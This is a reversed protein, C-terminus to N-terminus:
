RSPKSAIANVVGVFSDVAVVGMVIKEVKMDGASLRPGVLFTPTASLGLAQAQKIDAEVSTSPQGLCRDFAVVDVGASAAAERFTLDDFVGFAGFLSDHVKWFRDQREACAAAVAAAYARPHTARNPFHRFVFEATGADIVRAKLVPFVSQAFEQCYPCEFDSYSIVVVPATPVGIRPGADIRLPTAPLRPIAVPPTRAAPAIAIWLAAGLSGILGVSTAFDIAARLQAQRAPSLLVRKNTTM